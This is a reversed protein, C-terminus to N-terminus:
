GKMIGAELLAVCGKLVSARRRKKRKVCHADHLYVYLAHFVYISFHQVLTGAKFPVLSID